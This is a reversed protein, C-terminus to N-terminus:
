ADEEFLADVDLQYGMARLVASPVVEGAREAVDKVPLRKVALVEDHYLKYGLRWAARDSSRTRCAAKDRCHVEPGSWAGVWVEGEGPALPLYCMACRCPIKNVGVRTM